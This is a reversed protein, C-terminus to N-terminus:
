GCRKSRKRIPEGAEEALQWSNKRKIPSLLGHLYFRVRERIESREFLPKLRQYVEEFHDKWIEEPNPQAVLETKGKRM